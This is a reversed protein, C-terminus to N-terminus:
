NKKLENSKQTSTQTFKSKSHKKLKMVKKLVKQKNTGKSKKTSKPVKPRASCIHIARSICIYVGAQLKTTEPQRTKDVTDANFHFIEM